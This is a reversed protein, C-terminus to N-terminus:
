RDGGERNRSVYEALDAVDYRALRGVRVVPLDGRLTLLKVHRESTALVDAAERRNLLRDM